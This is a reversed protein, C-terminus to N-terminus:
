EDGVIESWQRLRDARAALENREGTQGLLGDALLDGRPRRTQGRVLGGRERAEGGAPEVPDRPQEVRLRRAPALRQELDGAGHVRVRLELRAVRGLADEVTCSL